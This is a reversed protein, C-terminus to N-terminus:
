GCSVPLVSPIKCSSERGLDGGGGLLDTLSDTGGESASHRFRRCTNGPFSSLSVGEAALRVRPGDQQEKGPVAHSGRGKAEVQQSINASRLSPVYEEM